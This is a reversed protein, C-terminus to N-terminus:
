NYNFTPFSSMGLTPESWIELKGSYGALLATQSFAKKM